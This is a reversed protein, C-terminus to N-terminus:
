YQQLLNAQIMDLLVPPQYAALSPVIWDARSLDLHLSLANPVGICYVGAAKASAIGNPSDEFAVSRETVVLRQMLLLYLDPDPKVRPTDEKCLICDFYATLKMRDLHDFVWARPSSSAIGLALDIHRAYEILATVGPLPEAQIMKEQVRSNFNAQLAARDFFRGTLTQLHQIPDFAKDSTGLCRAWFELALSAGNERYIESWAEFKPTETDLILGDFDYLLASIARAISPKM